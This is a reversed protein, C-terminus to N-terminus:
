PCGDAHHAAEIVADCGSYIPNGCRTCNLNGRARWEAFIRDAARKRGATTYRVPPVYPAPPQRFEGVYPKTPEPVAALKRAQPTQGSSSVPPVPRTPAQQPALRRAVVREARVSALRIDEAGVGVTEAMERVTVGKRLMGARHMAIVANAAVEVETRYLRPIEPLQSPHTTTM